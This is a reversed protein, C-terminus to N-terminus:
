CRETDARQKLYAAYLPYDDTWFKKRNCTRCLTQANSRETTGGAFRPVKHDLELRETSGCRECVPGKWEKKQWETFMNQEGRKRLKRRFLDRCALCCFRGGGPVKTVQFHPATFSTGCQLCTREVTKTRLLSYCERSCTRAFGKEVEHPRRKTIKGCVACESEVHDDRFHRAACTRSCTLAPWKAVHSPPKYFETGCVVCIRSVGLRKRGM